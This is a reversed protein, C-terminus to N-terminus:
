KNNKIKKKTKLRARNLDNKVIVSWKYSVIHNIQWVDDGFNGFIYGHIMIRNPLEFEFFCFYFM